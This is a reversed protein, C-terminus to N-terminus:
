KPRWSGLWPTAIPADVFAGEVVKEHRFEGRKFYRKRNQKEHPKIVFHYM